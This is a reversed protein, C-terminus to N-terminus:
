ELCVVVAAKQRQWDLPIVFSRIRDPLKIADLNGSVVVPVSIMFHMGFHERANGAITNAIEGALDMHMVPSLDTEGMALLVNNLMARPATVYVCGKRAGSIGIMGTMDLAPADRPDALYPVGVEAPIQTTQQFYRTAGQIFVRLEAEDM